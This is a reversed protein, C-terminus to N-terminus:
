LDSCRRWKTVLRFGSRMAVDRAELRIQWGFEFVRIGYQDSWLQDVRVGGCPFWVVSRMVSAGRNPAVKRVMEFAFGRSSLCGGGVENWWRESKGDDVIAM